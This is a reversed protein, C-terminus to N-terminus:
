WSPSCSPALIFDIDGVTESKVGAPFFTKKNTKCTLVFIQEWYFLSTPITDYPSTRRGVKKVHSYPTTPRLVDGYSVM